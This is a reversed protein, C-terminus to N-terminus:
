PVAFVYDPPTMGKLYLVIYDFQRKIFYPDHNFQHNRSSLVLM